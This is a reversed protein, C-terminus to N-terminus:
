SGKPRQAIFAQELELPTAADGNGAASALPANYASFGQLEDGNSPM